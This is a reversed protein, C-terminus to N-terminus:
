KNNYLEYRSVSTDIIRELYEGPVICEHANLKLVYHKDTAFERFKPVRTYINKIRGCELRYYDYEVNSKKEVVAMQCSVTEGEVIARLENSESFTSDISGILSLAAIASAGLASFFWIPMWGSNSKDCLNLTIACLATSVLVVLWGWHMMFISGEIGNFINEM